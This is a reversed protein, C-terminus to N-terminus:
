LPSILRLCLIAPYNVPRDHSYVSIDYLPGADVPYTGVGVGVDLDQGGCSLTGDLAERGSGKVARAAEYAELVTVGHNNQEYEPSAGLIIVGLNRVNEM